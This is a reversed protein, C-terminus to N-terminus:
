VNNKNRSHFAEIELVCMTPMAIHSVFSIKTFSSRIYVDLIPLIMIAEM